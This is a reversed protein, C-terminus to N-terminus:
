ARRDPAAHADVADVIEAPEALRGKGIWGCALYGEGPEVFRVGRATLTELNRVVAPHAFMNTNMAPAM